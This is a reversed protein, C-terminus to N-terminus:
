RRLAISWRANLTTPPRQFRCPAGAGRRSGSADVPRGDHLPERGTGFAGRAVDEVRKGMM